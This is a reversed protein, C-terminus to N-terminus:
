HGLGAHYQCYRDGGCPALDGGCDRHIGPTSRIAHRQDLIRTVEDQAAEVQAISAAKVIIQDVSDTGGVLYARMTGIPMIATDDDQGNNAVVGIIKFPTHAIRVTKGLAAASDGGFLEDIPKTGLIVVRANSREQSETFFEGALLRRNVLELYDSWVGSLACRHQAQGFRAVATGAVGSSVKGIDPASSSQSLAAVDVDTLKRAEGGGPVTGDIKTVVLQTGLAGFRKNFGAKM